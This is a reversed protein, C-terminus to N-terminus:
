YGEYRGVIEYKNKFTWYWTEVSAWEAVNLSRNEDGEAEEELSNRALFRTADRGGMVGYECGPGYLHRSRWVNFVDGNVAVLLPGEPDSGDYITLDAATWQNRPEVHARERRRRIREDNAAEAEANVRASARDDAGSLWIGGGAIAAVAAIIEPQLNCSVTLGPRRRSVPERVGGNPRFAEAADNLILYFAFAVKVLFPAM